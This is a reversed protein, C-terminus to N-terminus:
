LLMSVAKTVTGFYIPLLVKVIRTIIQLLRYNDLKRYQDIALLRLISYKSLRSFSPTGIFGEIAGNVSSHILVYSSGM